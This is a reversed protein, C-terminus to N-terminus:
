GIDGLDIMKEGLQYCFVDIVDGDAGIVSTGITIGYFGANTTEISQNYANGGSSYATYGSSDIGVLSFTTSSLVDIQYLNGNLQTMGVVDRIRVFNGDAWGSTSGVTIVCPNAQTAGSIVQSIDTQSSAAYTSVGNSTIISRDLSAIESAQAYAYGNAMRIDWYFECNTGDTAWKTRNYIHVLDPIYGVNLNYAAGGSVLTFGRIKPVM